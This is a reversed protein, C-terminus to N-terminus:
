NRRGFDYHKRLLKMRVPPPDDLSFIRADAALHGELTYDAEARPPTKDLLTFTTEAVGQPHRRHVEIRRLVKRQADIELRVYRLPLFPRGAKPEAEVVQVGPTSETRRLEFHALVDTLLHDVNMARLDCTRALPEPVEDAEFRFGARPLPAFWVRGQADRGWVNTRGNPMVTKMFFRDGRTWLKTEPPLPPLWDGELIPPNSEVRLYCLDVPRTHAQQAERVLTEASARPTALPLTWLVALLLSAAAALALRGAWRPATPRAGPIAGAAGRAISSPVAPAGTANRAKVRALIGAADVTQEARLLHDRVLRDVHEDSLPNKTNM